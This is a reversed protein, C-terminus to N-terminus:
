GAANFLAAMSQAAVQTADFDRGPHNKKNRKPIRWVSRGTMIMKRSPLCVAGSWSGMHHADHLLMGRKAISDINPTHCVKNGYAGLSHPAQDDTLIFLFNPRAATAGMTLLPVMLASTAIRKSTM